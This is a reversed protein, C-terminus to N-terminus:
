KKNSRKKKRALKPDRSVFWKDNSDFWWADSHTSLLYKGVAKGQKTKLRAFASKQWAKAKVNGKLEEERLTALWELSDADKVLKAELTEKAHEEAYFEVMEKGFPIEMAIDKFAQTEALRGYRQHVYNLDSTRGEAFDHFMGMYVVKARDAEPTLYCLAYAIYTTRLLHEAVSQTGTGLFWLGSRPTKTLIGAEYIFHAISQLEDKKKM